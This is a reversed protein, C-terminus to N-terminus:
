AAALVLTPSLIKKVYGTENDMSNAFADSRSITRATASLAEANDRSTRNTIM